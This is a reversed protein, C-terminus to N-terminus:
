KQKTISDAGSITLFLHLLKDVPKNILAEKLRKWTERLVVVGNFSYRSYINDKASKLLM